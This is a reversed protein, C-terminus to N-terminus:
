EQLEQLQKSKWSQNLKKAIEDYLGLCLHSCNIYNIAKKYFIVANEIDGSQEYLDGLEYTMYITRSDYKEFYEIQMQLASCMYDIAFLINGQEKM